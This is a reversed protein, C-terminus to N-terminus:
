SAVTRTVLVTLRGGRRGGSLSGLGPGWTRPGSAYRTTRAVHMNPEGTSVRKPTHDRPRLGRATEGYM